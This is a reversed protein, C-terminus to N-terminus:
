QIKTRSKVGDIAGNEMIYRCNVRPDNAVWPRNQERPDKVRNGIM